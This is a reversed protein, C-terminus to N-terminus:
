NSATWSYTSGNYTFTGTMVIQSLNAANQIVSGTYPSGSYLNTFNITSGSCTGQVPASGASPITINGAINGNADEILTLTASTGALDMNFTGDCTLAGSSTGGITITATGMGGSSDQVTITVTEGSVTGSAIYTASSGTGSVTGATATYTYVGTGGSVTIVDSGGVAVSTTAPTVVLTGSTGSGVTIMVVSTQAPNSADTITVQVSGPTSGASFVTFTGSNQSLTGGISSMLAFTYPQTGGSPTLMVSGSVPVSLTQGPVIPTGNQSVTLGSVQAAAAPSSSGSSGSCGTTAFIIAAVGFALMKLNKFVSDM